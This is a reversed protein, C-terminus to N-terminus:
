LVEGTLIERREDKTHEGTRPCRFSALHPTQEQEVSSCRFMAESWIKHNDAFGWASADSM